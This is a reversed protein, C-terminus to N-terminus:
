FFSASASPMFGRKFNECSNLTEIIRSHIVFPPGDDVCEGGDAIKKPKAQVM